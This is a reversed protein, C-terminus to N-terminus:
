VEVMPGFGGNGSNVQSTVSAIGRTTLTCGKDSFKESIAGQELM